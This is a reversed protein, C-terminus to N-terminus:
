DGNGFPEFPETGPEYGRSLGIQSCILPSCAVFFIGEVGWNGSNASGNGRRRVIM